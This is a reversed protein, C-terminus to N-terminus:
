VSITESPLHNLCIKLFEGPLLISRRRDPALRELWPERSAANSEIAPRAGDAPASAGSAGSACITTFTVPPCVIGNQYRILSVLHGSWRIMPEHPIIEASWNIAGTDPWRESRL